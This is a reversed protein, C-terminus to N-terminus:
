SLRPPSPAAQLEKEQRGKESMKYAKEPLSKNLAEIQANIKKIIEINSNIETHVEHIASKKNMIEQVSLQRQKDLVAQQEITENQKQTIELQLQEIKEKELLMSSLLEASKKLLQEILAQQQTLANSYNRTNETQSQFIADKELNLNVQKKTIIGQEVILAAKEESLSTLASALERSKDILKNQKAYVTLLEKELNAISNNIKRREEEEISAAPIGWAELFSKKEPNNKMSVIRRNRLKIGELHYAIMFARLILYYPNISYANDVM